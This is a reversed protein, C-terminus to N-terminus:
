NCSSKKPKTNPIFVFTNNRMRTTKLKTHFKMPRRSNKFSNTQM